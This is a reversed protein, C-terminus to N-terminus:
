GYVCFPNADGCPGHLMHAAVRSFLIPHTAPDPFEACVFRDYDDDTKPKHRTAFYLYTPM